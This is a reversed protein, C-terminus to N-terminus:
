NLPVLVHFRQEALVKGKHLIQMTWIGEAIEWRHDFGYAEFRVTGVQVTQPVDQWSRSVGTKPNTLRPFRLRFTLTAGALAPDRVRYRFGFTRGMQATFRRTKRLLRINSVIEREGAIQEPAKETREHTSAYLGFDIIEIAPTSFGGVTPQKSKAAAPAALALLILGLTALRTL